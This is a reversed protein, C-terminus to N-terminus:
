APDDVGGALAAAVQEATFGRATLFRVQRARERRDLPLGEGFRKARARCARRVWAEARPECTAERLAGPIGREKLELSIRVPGFGRGSRATVYAEAFREDSQLRQAALADLEAEVAVAEFGLRALKRRLEGRSHERRTLLGLARARLMAPDAAESRSM